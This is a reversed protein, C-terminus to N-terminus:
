PKAVPRYVIGLQHFLFAHVDVDEEIAASLPTGGGHGTNSSTRLLIPAKSAAISQLRATMKRSHFPDVRPDNAGTLFLTAPLAATEKVHHYPSYDYLAKFHDLNKVTGFETTNFAGNPTLEVRLMDYIGVHSVVARFLEPHQAIMAGMLLGGNSGGIIALREPRTHNSDILYRACGVFDDFVNQKRTLNGAEHWEAGFEGGGRLNAVAFVAGQELWLRLSADFRPTKSIGYGGYGNLLAPSQGDLKLGKRRLINIPIRAGDKSTCTERVVETDSFDVMSTQYLSSRSLKNDKATFRHWGPPETYSQNRLLVDDGDLHVVQGVSSVPLIPVPALARGDASFVRVQSPGGLLDVVFIRSKTVEIQQIVADSQPVVVKAQKLDPKNPSLRVVKGRPAGGRSLLYLNKDAGFEAHIVKDAFDAIKEWKGSPGLLHFAYEGGDGNQVSVLVYRGDDSTELEVEAIRPFDKGIVYRDESEKTGLKHFYVQQYFDVDAAPREGAHPYRTYYFGSGDATWALSGGATGGNVRPIVDGVEKGTDVDYIHVDGSETGNASLSVAIRKGDRSPVYFDITTSGKADIQNPDVLVRESKSDAASNMTVLFPQQKPPEDKLAFLIGARYHLAFRDPSSATSIQTAREHIAKRAPLADLVSRAYANQADSWRQVEPDASNELWQYDDTVPTGHYENVVQKKPTEPWKPSTTGSPAEAPTTSPAAETPTPSQTGMEPAGCHVLSATLAIAFISTRRTM